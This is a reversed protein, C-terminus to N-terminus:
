PKRLHLIRDSVFLCQLDVGQVRRAGQTAQGRQQRGGGGGEGRPVELARGAVLRVEAPLCQEGVDSQLVELQGREVAVGAAHPEGALLPPVLVQVGVM